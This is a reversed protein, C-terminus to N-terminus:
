QSMKLYIKLLYNRRGKNRKMLRESLLLHSLPMVEQTLAKFPQLNLIKYGM